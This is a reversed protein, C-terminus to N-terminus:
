ELKLLALDNVVDVVAATAAYETRTEKGKAMRVQVVKLQPSQGVVHAATIVWWQGAADRHCIGSGEGEDAVISVTARQLHEVVEPKIQAHGQAPFWLALFLCVVARM